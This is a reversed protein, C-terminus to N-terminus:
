KRGGGYLYAVLNGQPILRAANIGGPQLAKLKGARIARVITQTSCKALAAVEVVTYFGQVSQQRKPIFQTKYKKM